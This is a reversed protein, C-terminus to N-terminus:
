GIDRFLESEKKKEKKSLVKKPRDALQKKTLKWTCCPPNPMGIQPKGSRILRLQKKAAYLSVKPIGEKEAENFLETIKVEGFGLRKLLWTKARDIQDETQSLKETDLIWLNCGSKIKKVALEKAVESLCPEEFGLKEAEEYIKTCRVTGNANIFKDILWRGIIWEKIKTSM